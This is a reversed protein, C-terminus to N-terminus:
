TSTPRFMAITADHGGLYDHRFRVLTTEQLAWDIWEVTNFRRAPGTDRALVEGSARDSLFNFVVGRGATEWAREIVSRSVAEPVTNLSGSFYIIDPQGIALASADAVFDRCHFEAHPLGRKTAGAVIEAVGDVGVYKRLRVNRATLFECLDGLGCGADLLTVGDLDAMQRLVEFRVAQYERNKWLTADFTAGFHDVAERYPGLYDGHGAAGEPPSQSM